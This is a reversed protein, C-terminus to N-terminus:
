CEWKYSRRSYFLHHLVQLVKRFLFYDGVQYGMIRDIFYGDSNIFFIIGLCLSHDGFLFLYLLVGVSTLADDGHARYM